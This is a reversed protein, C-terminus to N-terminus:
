LLTSRKLRENMASSHCISIKKNQKHGNCTYQPPCKKRCKHISFLFRGSFVAKKCYNSSLKVSFKEMRMVEKNVTAMLM